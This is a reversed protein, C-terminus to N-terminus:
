NKIINHILYKGLEAEEKCSTYIDCNEGSCTKCKCCKKEQEKLKMATFDAQESSCPELTLWVSVFDDDYM